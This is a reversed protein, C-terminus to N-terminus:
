KAFSISNQNQITKMEGTPGDMQGYGPKVTIKAKFQMAAGPSDNQTNFSCLDAKSFLTNSTIDNLVSRDAASETSTGLLVIVTQRTDCQNRLVHLDRQAPLMAKQQEATNELVANLHRNPTTASQDTERVIQLQQLTIERPLRSLLSSLLQSRPWPHHLYTILEAEMDLKHLQSQVDSLQKQYNIAREYDPTLASLENEVFRRHIKQSITVLVVLGLFSIVVIIQWPKAHRYAHKHHYQLPLFDIENM